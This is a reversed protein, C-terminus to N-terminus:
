NDLLGNNVRSRIIQVIINLSCDVFYQNTRDNEDSVIRDLPKFPDRNWRIDPLYVFYFSSFHFFFYCFIFFLFLILLYYLYFSKRSTSSEPRDRAAKFDTPSIRTATATTSQALKKTKKKKEKKRKEKKKKGDM